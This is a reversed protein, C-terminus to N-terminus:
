EIRSCCVNVFESLKSFYEDGGIIYTDNHGAGRVLYYYKRAKTLSYLKESMGVPITYDYQGHVFLVPVTVNRIWEITNYADKLSLKSHIPLSYMKMMDISSTFAAELILGGCSYRSAIYTALASGLSRGFLILDRPLIGMTEILHFYAAQSDKFTGARSITGESKGYERYDFIFVNVRLKKHMVSVNHARDGINGANGHFWLVTTRAESHPVWWGHLKVGDSTTFYVDEYDLEYDAPTELIAKEPFFVIGKESM